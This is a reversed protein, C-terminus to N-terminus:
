FVRLPTGDITVGHQVEDKFGGILYDKYSFEIEMTNYAESSQLMRFIYEFIIQTSNKLGSLVDDSQIYVKVFRRDDLIEVTKINKGKRIKIEGDDVFLKNEIMYDEIFPCASTKM